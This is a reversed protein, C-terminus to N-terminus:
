LEGRLWLAVMCGASIAVVCFGPMLTTAPAPASLGCITLGFGIAFSITLSLAATLIM